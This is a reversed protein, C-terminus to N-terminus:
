FSDNQRFLTDQKRKEEKMEAYVVVVDLIVNEKLVITLSNKISYKIIM